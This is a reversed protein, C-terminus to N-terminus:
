RSNKFPAESLTKWVREFPGQSFRGLWWKSFLVLVSVIGLWAALAVFANPQRGLGLGWGYFLVSALVGQLMYNSLAMRGFRAVGHRIRELWGRHFAHLVLGIYGVGVLPAVAYRSVLILQESYFECLLALPLGLGLGLRLFRLALAQDTLFGRRFFQVGLLFLGLSLPIVFVPEIRLLWFERLRYLVGDWYSGELYVRQLDAYGSLGQSADGFFLGVTGLGVLLGHLGFALWMTPRIWNKYVMVAAIMATIAYGMLIDFEIVLAFHLLGDLFLLLSRWLYAPLFARGQKKASQYQLELGVGFLITLIGLFKGNTLFLTLHQLWTELQSTYNTQGFVAGLNGANAFIWINTGLTGIIAFGRLFDLAELRQEPAQAM